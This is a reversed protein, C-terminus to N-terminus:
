PAPGAPGNTATRSATARPIRSRCSARHLASRRHVRHHVLRAPLRRGDGRREQPRCRARRLEHPLLPPRLSYALTENMPRSLETGADVASLEEALATIHECTTTFSLAIESPRTKSAEISTEEGCIGAQVWCMAMVDEGAPARSPRGATTPGLIGWPTNSGPVPRESTRLASFSGVRSPPPAPRWSWRPPRPAATSSDPWGHGGVEDM